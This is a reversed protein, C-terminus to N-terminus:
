EEIFKLKLLTELYQEKPMDSYFLPQKGDALWNLIGEEPPMVRKIKKDSGKCKVSIDFVADFAVGNQSIFGCVHQSLKNGGRRGLTLIAPTDAQWGCRNFVKVM